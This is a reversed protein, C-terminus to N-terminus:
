YKIFFCVVFKPVITIGKTAFKQYECKNKTCDNAYKINWLLSAKLESNIIFTFLITNLILFFHFIYKNVLFVAINTKTRRLNRLLMSGSKHVILFLNM